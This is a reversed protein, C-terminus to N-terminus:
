QDMRQIIKLVVEHQDGDNDELLFQVTPNDDTVKKLVKIIKTSNLKKEIEGSLETFAQAFDLELASPNYSSTKM